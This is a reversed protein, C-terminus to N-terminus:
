QLPMPFHMGLTVSPAGHAIALWHVLPNQASPTQQSWAHVPVQWAQVAAWL